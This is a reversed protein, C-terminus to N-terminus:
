SRACRKRRPLLRAWGQLRKQLNPQSQQKRSFSQGTCTQRYREGPQIAGRIAPHFAAIGYPSGREEGPLPAPLEAPPFELKGRGWGQCVSAIQNRLAGEWLPGLGAILCPVGSRRQLLRALYRLEGYQAASGTFNLCSIWFLDPDLESYAAALEGSVRQSLYRADVCMGIAVSRPAGSQPAQHGAGSARAIGLFSRAIALEQRRGSTLPAADSVCHGSWFFITAGAMAQVNRHLAALEAQDASTLRMIGPDFRDELWELGASRYTKSRYPHGPELQVRYPETDVVTGFGREGAAAISADLQAADVASIGIAGIPGDPRLSEVVYPNASKIWQVLPRSSLYELQVVV